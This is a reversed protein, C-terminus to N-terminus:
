GVCTLLGTMVVSNFWWAFWDAAVCCYGVVVSLVAVAIACVFWAVSCVLDYCLLLYVFCGCFLLGAFLLGGM